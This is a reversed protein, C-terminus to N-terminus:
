ANCGWKEFKGHVSIFCTRWHFGLEVYFIEVDGGSGLKDGSFRGGGHRRDGSRGGGLREGSFGGCDLSGGSSGCRETAARDVYTPRLVSPSRPRRLCKVHDM